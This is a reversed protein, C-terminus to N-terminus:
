PNYIRNNLRSEALVELRLATDFMAARLHVHEYKTFFSEPDERYKNIYEVVRTLDSDLATTHHKRGYDYSM